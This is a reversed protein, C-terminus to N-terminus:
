VKYIKYGTRIKQPIKIGVEDGTKAETVPKHNIEMSRIIQQSDIDGGVIRIKDGIKLNAQLKIAAVEFHAFYNTVTGILRGYNEM